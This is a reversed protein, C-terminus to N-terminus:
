QELKFGREGLMKELNKMLAGSLLVPFAYIITLITWSDSEFDLINMTTRLSFMAIFTAIILIINVAATIYNYILWFIRFRPMSSRESMAIKLIFIFNLSLITIFIALPSM